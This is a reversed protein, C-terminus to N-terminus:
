MINTTKDNFNKGSRNNTIKLILCIYKAGLKLKGLMRYDSQAIVAVLVVVAEGNNLCGFSLRQVDTKPVVRRLTENCVALIQQKM